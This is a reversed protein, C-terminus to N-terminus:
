GVHIHIYEDDEVHLCAFRVSSGSPSSIDESGPRLSPVFDLTPSFFISANPHSVFIRWSRKERGCACVCLFFFILWGTKGEFTCSSHYSRRFKRSLREVDDLRLLDWEKTKMWIHLAREQPEQVVLGQVVNLPTM